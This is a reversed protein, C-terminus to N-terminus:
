LLTAKACYEAPPPVADPECAIEIPPTLPVNADLAVVADPVVEIAM